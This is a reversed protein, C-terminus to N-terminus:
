IMKTQAQLFSSQSCNKPSKHRITPTRRCRGSPSASTPGSIRRTRRAFIATGRSEGIRPKGNETYPAIVRRKKKVADLNFTFEDSVTFFWIDEAANKWNAKGRPGKRTGVYHPEAAQFLALRCAPDRRVFALRRLYLRESNSEFAACM